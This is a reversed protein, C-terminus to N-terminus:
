KVQNSAPTIQSHVIWWRGQREEFSNTFRYSRMSVKGTEVVILGTTKGKGRIVSIEEHRVTVQGEHPPILFVNM